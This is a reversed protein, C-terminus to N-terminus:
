KQLILASNRALLVSYKELRNDSFPILRFLFLYKIDKDITIYNKSSDNFYLISIYSLYFIRQSNIFVKM